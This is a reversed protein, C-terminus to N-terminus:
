KKGDKPQTNEAKKKFYNRLLFSHQLAKLNEDLSKSGSELNEITKKLQTGAEENHLLVGLPTQENASASNLNGVFVAATDVLNQLQLASAKMSNFVITDTTLQNALTGEKNLGDSFTALSNIVRQANKSATQLSLAAEDLHDYISADNLMKGITGEGKAMQSSITKFDTTIALVNKNNEQLTNIMDETTFTKEVSLTDGAEIQPQRLEGGYIVLIKNGILGDTSLKVYANKRIYQQSKNEVKMKVKVKNNDFFELSSVTGVKVGSFWINNGVQLGNVDDFLAFVEIKKKFTNHLNGITLIGAILFAVGLFVFLGVMVARKNPSENM